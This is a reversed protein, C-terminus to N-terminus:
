QDPDRSGDNSSQGPDTIIENEDVWIVRVTYQNPLDHSPTEDSNADSQDTWEDYKKRLFRHIDEAILEGSRKGAGAAAGSALTVIIVTTWPDGPLPHSVGVTIDEIKEGFEEELDTILDDKDANMLEISQQHRDTSPPM